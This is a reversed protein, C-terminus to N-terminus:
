ISPSMLSLLKHSRFSFWISPARNGDSRGEEQSGCRHFQAPMATVLASNQPAHLWPVSIPQATGRLIHALGHSHFSHSRMQLHLRQLNVLLILDDPLGRYIVLTGLSILALCLLATCCHFHLSTPIGSGCLYFFVPPTTDPQPRPLM